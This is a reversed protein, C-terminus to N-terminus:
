DNESFSKKRERKARQTDSYDRRSQEKKENYEKKNNKYLSDKFTKGM